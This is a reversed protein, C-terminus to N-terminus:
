TRRYSCNQFDCERCPPHEEASLEGESLPVVFSISKKPEMMCYENLSVGIPSPDLVAFVARQGSTDWRGYGPSLQNLASLKLARAEECILRSCRRAVDEVARNGVVDAIMGAFFDGKDFCADIFKDLAPGISCIAVGLAKADNLASVLTADDIKLGDICIASSDACSELEVCTYIAKGRIMSRCLDANTLIQRMISPQVEDANKYGLPGLLEDTKVTADIDKIKFRVSM